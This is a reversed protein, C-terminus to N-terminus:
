WGFDWPLFCVSYSGFGFYCSGDPPEVIRILSSGDNKNYGLGYFDLLYYFGADKGGKSDLSIDFRRGNSVKKIFDVVQTKFYLSEGNYYNLGKADVFLWSLLLFAFVFFFLFTKVKQSEYISSLLSLLLVFVPIVFYFYYESPRSGYLLFIFPFSFIILSLILSLHKQYIGKLKIFLVLSLLLLIFYFVLGGVTTVREALVFSAFNTWVDVLGGKVLSSEKFGFVLSLNLFNHRLDFVVIPLFIILSSVFFLLTKKLILRKGGELFAVLVFPFYLLAQIHFSIGLFFSLCLAFFWKLEGKLYYKYYSFVLLLFVFSVFIPNWVIRDMAVAAPLVSWIVLFVFSALKGLSKSLLKYAFVFFLLWYFILFLYLSLTPNGRGLFYFPTLVYFFYPPLFFGTPGVVRPGILTLKGKLIDSVVFADREQDWGFPLFRQLNYLRFFFYIALVLLWLYKKKCLGLVLALWIFLSFLSVLNFFRQIPTQVIRWSVFNYNGFEKADICVRGECDFYEINERGNVIFKYAGPFHSLALVVRGELREDFRLNFSGYTSGRRIDSIQGDSIFSGASECSALSGRPLIENAVTTTSYRLAKKDLGEYDLSQVPFVRLHNRNGWFALFLVLFFFPYVIRRGFNEKLFVLFYSFLASVLFVSVGLIRWPFQVQELIKVSKWIFISSPLMVFISFVSLVFYFVLWFYKGLFLPTKEKKCFLFYVVFLFSVFLVFWQAYGLMFSMGDGTGPLSYFYGWKSRLLQGLTPFHYQYNAVIYPDSIRVNKKELLAPGIFFSAMLFGLILSVILFHRRKLGLTLFKGLFYSLLVPLSILVAINHSLLYFCFIISLFFGIKILSKERKLFFLSSLFFVLPFIAYTLFELSGRVFVLSFRYPALLYLLAGGFSALSNNTESKIWLFFFWSGFLLSAFVLIKWSLLFDGLFLFLFSMIYYGLPYFFNFIAVGCGYNLSGAWRLPFHGEKLASYAELSRILNYDLDHAYFYKERLFYWCVWFSLAAFIFFVFLGKFRGVSSFFSLRNKM